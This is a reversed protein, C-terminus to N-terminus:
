AVNSNSSNCFYHKGLFEFYVEDVICKVFGSEFPSTLGAESLAELYTGETNRHLLEKYIRLGEGETQAEAMYLELASLVSTCYSQVYTPYLVTHTITITSVSFGDPNYFGFEAAVSKAIKAINEKTIEDYPLEYIMHEVQAYYGQVMLTQLASYLAEYKLYLTIESPLLRKSFLPTLLELAQSYVECLDLSSSTNANVFYDSFHGFEHAVTLYDSVNQRITAFLFPADYNSFYTTFAGDFREVSAKKVDYLEFQLMYAYIDALESDSLQYIQYLNNILEISTTRTNEISQMKLSYASYFEDDWYIHTAYSKIEEILGKMDDPTYEYGNEEYAFPLYNEYGLADAIEKRTRVLEVYLDNIPEVIQNEYALDLTLKESLYQASGLMSEYKKQIEALFEDYTGVEGRFEFTATSSLTNYTSEMEGEKALLAVVEDSLRGGDQYESIDEGFYDKEFDRAHASQACAVFLDEVANAFRPYNSSVYTNEENIQEDLSNQYQKAQILSYATEVNGYPENLDFIANLQQEYSVENASILAVTKDFLAIVADFDPRSYEMESFKVTRRDAYDKYPPVIIGVDNKNTDENKNENGNKNEDDTSSMDDSTDPVMCSLLSSPSVSIFSILLLLSIWREIFRM